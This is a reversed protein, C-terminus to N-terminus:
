PIAGYALIIADHANSDPKPSAWGVLWINQTGPIPAIGLPAIAEDGGIVKTIYLGISADTWASGTWHAMPGVWVGSKGDFVVPAEYTMPCYGEYGPPCLNAPLSVQTWKRGTWHLLVASPKGSEPFAFIWLQGDPAAAMSQDDTIRASPSSVKQLANGAVEYMVPLGSIIGKVYNHTNIRTLDLFWVHSRNTAVQSVLGTVNESLWTSGNWHLVTTTCTTLNNSNCTNEGVAWANTSNLVVVDGLEFGYPLTKATLTSGNYVLATPNGQDWGFFWVNNPATATVTVASFSPFKGAFATTWKGRTWHMFLSRVKAGTGTSGAAWADTKSDASVVQLDSQATSYSRFSVHWPPASAAQAPLAGIMM